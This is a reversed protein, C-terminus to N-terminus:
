LLMQVLLIWGFDITKGEHEKHSILIYIGINMCDDMDWKM